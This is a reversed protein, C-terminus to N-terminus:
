VALSSKRKRIQEDALLLKRETETPQKGMLMKEKLKSIRSLRKREKNLKNWNASRRKRMRNANTFGYRSSEYRMASETARKVYAKTYDFWEAWEPSMAKGKSKPKLGPPKKKAGSAERNAALFPAYPLPPTRSILWRYYDTDRIDALYVTIGRSTVQEWTAHRVEEYSETNALKALSEECESITDLSRAVIHGHGECVSTGDERRYKSAMSLYAWYTSPPMLDAAPVSYFADKNYPPQVVYQRTIYDITEWGALMIGTPLGCWMDSKSARVVGEVIGTPNPQIYVSALMYAIDRDLRPSQASLASVLLAASSTGSDVTLRARYGIDGAGAGGITVPIDYLTSVVLTSVALWYLKSKTGFMSDFYGTDWSCALLAADNLLDWARDKDVRLLDYIYQGSPRRISGDVLGINAVANAVDVLWHKNIARLPELRRSSSLVGQKPRPDKGCLACDWINFTGKGRIGSPAFPNPHILESRHKLLGSGVIADSAMCMEAFRPGLSSLLLIRGSRDSGAALGGSGKVGDHLLNYRFELFSRLKDGSWEEIKRGFFTHESV